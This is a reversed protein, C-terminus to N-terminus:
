LGCGDGPQRYWGAGNDSKRTLANEIDEIVAFYHRDFSAGMRISKIEVIMEKYWFYIQLGTVLSRALSCNMPVVNYLVLLSGRLTALDFFLKM